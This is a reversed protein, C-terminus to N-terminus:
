IYFYTKKKCVAESLKQIVYIMLDHIEFTKYFLANIQTQKVSSQITSVVVPICVQRM